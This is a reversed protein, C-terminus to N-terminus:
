IEFTHIKKPKRPPVNKDVNFQYKRKRSPAKVPATTQSNLAGDVKEEQDSYDSSDEDIDRLPMTFHDDRSRKISSLGRSDRYLRYFIGSRNLKTLKKVFNEDHSIVILQFNKQYKSRAKVITTIADALSEANQEDLNTTPEDLALVGCNKCFTEALAMRIIISALVRQGASCRGKMDMEAGHKRQVLKYKFQRRKDGAETAEAKIEIGTTDTGKYVTRWMHKIIKNVTSIREEHYEIMARDLAKVYEKLNVVIEQQVELEICKKKYNTRAMRYVENKLEQQMQAVSRELEEQKGSAINKERLLKEEKENLKKYEQILLEHQMKKMSVEIKLIEQELSKLEEEKQRLTINDVLERKRVEQRMVDKKIQDIRKELDAKTIKLEECSNEYRKMQQEASLLKKHVGRQEFDDIQKQTNTLEHLRRSGEHIKREEVERQEKHKTKTKELEQIGSTLQEDARSLKERLNQVSEGLSIERAYLDNQKDRLQQLKQMESQIRLQEEYLENRKHRAQQLEENHLNLSTQMSEIEKSVEKLQQKLSDREIQAEQITRESTVGADFIRKKISALTRNLKVLEDAYKDWLAVDGVMDKCASLKNEPDLTSVRLMELKKCSDALQKKREELQVRLRKLEVGEVHAVKEVIPKLQLLSEYKQQQIKLEEECSQLRSPGMDERIETILNKVELTSQFDRHCLPCSPDEEELQKLYDKYAVGRYAYMGRKKQLEKVVESQSLVVDEYNEYECHFSIKEKDSKLTAIKHKLEQEIHKITTELSSVRNQESQLEQNLNNIRGMLVRQINSLRNKLTGEPLETTGLLKKLESEYKNRLNQIETEKTMVMSKNLELEAQLASQKHLSSVEDDVKNLQGELKAKKRIENQIKSKVSDVDFKKALLEIKDNAKQLEKELDDLKKAAASVQKIRTRLTNLEEVIDAVEVEKLNMESEIKTKESRLTDVEKQLQKEISERNIQNNGVELKIECMKQELRKSLAIVEIETVDSSITDLNWASLADNLLKNRIVIREDQDKVQQQLTGVALRKEDLLKRINSEETKIEKMREELEEAEEKKKNLIDAYSVLEENLEEVTGQFMEEINSKLNVIQKKVHTHQMRQVEIESKMKGYQSDLDKIELMRQTVPVLSKEIVSIKSKSSELREKANSLEQEKEETRILNIECTKKEAVLFRNETELTKTYKTLSEVAKDYKETDFIEDFRKKLIKAESLPWDFDDQHCFIVYNLIANSVGMASVIETNVNACRNTISIPKGSDISEKTITSDLTKFIVRKDFRSLEMARSITVRNRSVDVVELKVNARVICTTTTVPDHVFAKGASSDPPYAGTTAFKLAEIITTKGTGNPGVILTIPRMFRIETETDHDFNRIGRISLKKVRSM